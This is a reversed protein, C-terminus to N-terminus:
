FFLERAGLRMDIDASDAMDIMTFGRQGRRQGLNTCFLKTTLEFGVILNVCRWFFLRAANRNRGSVHFVFRGITVISVDIAGAM